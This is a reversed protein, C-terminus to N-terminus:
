TWFWTSRCLVFGLSGVLYIKTRTKALLPGVTRDRGAKATKEIIGIFQLKLPAAILFRFTDALLDFRAARIALRRILKLTRTSFGFTMDHPWTVRAV